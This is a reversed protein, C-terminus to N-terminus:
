RWARGHRAHERLIYMGASHVAVEHMVMDHLAVDHVVVDHMSVDHVGMCHMPHKIDSNVAIYWNDSYPLFHNLLPM